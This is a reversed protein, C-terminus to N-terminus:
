KSAGGYHLIAEYCFFMIVANPVVRMLHATMGGYMAAVGEERVITKICRVLGKYKADGHVPVQRMRTRIVEHPYSVCAAILKASAAAALKDFWPWKDDSKIIDGSVNRRKERNKAFTSKLYEYTVWQITGETIGLYSASLGKYLARVGEERVVKRVCDYSNKYKMPVQLSTNTSSQLQMRTKVLWIPNTATSTTIGATIAATLHVLSNEHGGNLETLVKKGNGYTFFNIARAPVVGVLNPGLGKFLARWGENRYVDSLIKGTQIFHGIIPTAARKSDQLSKLKTKYYTSQLRTKVVDLPSTVTAGIMGGTGGAVFHLWAKSAEQRKKSTAPSQQLVSTQASFKLPTAAM